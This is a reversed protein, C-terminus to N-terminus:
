RKITCSNSIFTRPKLYIGFGLLDDKRAKPNRAMAM